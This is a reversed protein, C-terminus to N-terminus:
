KAASFNPASRSAKPDYKLRGLEDVVRRAIQGPAQNSSITMQIYMNTNGSGAGVGHKKDAAKGWNSIAKQVGVIQMGHFYSDWGKGIDENEKDRGKAFDIAANHAAAACSLLEQALEGSTPILAHLGMDAEIVSDTWNHTNAAADALATQFMTTGMDIKGTMGNMASMHRIQAETVNGMIQAQEVLAEKYEKHAEYVLAVVAAAEALALLAVGASAAGMAVGAMGGEGAVGAAGSGLVAGVNGFGAKAIGGFAGALGGGMKIAGYLELATIIKDLTGPDKLAEKFTDGLSEVYPKIDVWISVLKDYANGAFDLLAPGWELFASKGAYFADVLFNGLKHSWESVTGQNDAFWENFNKLENKIAGFLPMTTDGLFKKANDIGSTWQAEFTNGFAAVAGQYKGLAKELAEARKEPAMGKFGSGATIGLRTAFINHAGVRGELAQALERGVMDSRLGMVAGAAMAQASMKELRDESLGANFGSTSISRFIGILDEFEGPLAAADKRMRSMIDGAPALADAFTAKQGAVELIAAISYQTEELHKNLGIVGYAAAGLGAAGAIKASTELFRGAGEVIGTFASGADSGFDRFAGGISQAKAHVQDLSSLARGNVLEGSTELRIDVLYEVGESM